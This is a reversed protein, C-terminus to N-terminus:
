PVRSHTSGFVPLNSLLYNTSSRTLLNDTGLVGEVASMNVAQINDDGSSGDGGGRAGKSTAKDIQRGIENGIEKKIAKFFGKFAM